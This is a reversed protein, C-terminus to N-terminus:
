CRKRIVNFVNVKNAVAQESSCQVTGQRDDWDAVEDIPQQFAVECFKCKMPQSTLTVPQNSSFTVIVAKSCGAHLHGM